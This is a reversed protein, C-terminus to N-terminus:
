SQQRKDPDHENVSSQLSDISLVISITDHVNNISLKEINTARSLFGSDTDDLKDKHHKSHNFTIHSQQQRQQKFLESSQKSMAPIQASQVFESYLTM